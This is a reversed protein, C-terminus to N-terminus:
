GLSYTLHGLGRALFRLLDDGVVALCLVIVVQQLGEFRAHRQEPRLHFRDPFAARVEAVAERADLRSFDPNVVHMDARVSVAAVAIVLRRTPPLQQEVSLLDSLQNALGDLAPHRQHGHAHVQLVATHLHGDAQGLALLRVVLALRDFAALRIAFCAGGDLFSPLSSPWIFLERATNVATTMRITRQAPHHTNWLRPPSRM